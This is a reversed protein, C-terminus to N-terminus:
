RVRPRMLQKNKGRVYDKRPRRPRTASLSMGGARMASKNQAALKRVHAMYKANKLLAMLSRKKKAPNLGRIRGEKYDRYAERAAEAWPSMAKHVRRAALKVRKGDVTRKRLHHPRRHVTIHTLDASAPGTSSKRVSHRRASDKRAPIARSRLKMGTHAPIVRSRLNM